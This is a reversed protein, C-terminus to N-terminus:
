LWPTTLKGSMVVANTLGSRPSFFFIPWNCKSLRLASSRSSVVGWNARVLGFVDSGARKGVSDGGWIAVEDLESPQGRVGFLCKRRGSMMLHQCHFSAFLGDRGDGNPRNTTVSTSETSHPYGCPPLRPWDRCGGERRLASHKQHDNVEKFGVVVRRTSSRMAAVSRPSSSPPVVPPLLLLLLFLRSLLCRRQLLIPHRQGSCLADLSQRRHFHRCFLRGGGRGAWPFQFHLFVSM